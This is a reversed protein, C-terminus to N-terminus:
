NTTNDQRNEGDNIEKAQESMFALQEELDDARVSDLIM